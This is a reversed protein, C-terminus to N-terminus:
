LGTAGDGGGLVSNNIKCIVAANAGWANNNVHDALGIVKIPLNVTTAATSTDVEHASLGGSGNTALVDYNLGVDAAAATEDHQALYLADPDDCVLISTGSAAVYEMAVGLAKNDGADYPEVEGDAALRVLDGKYIAEATDKTYKRVKFSKGGSQYLVFGRPADVNPM